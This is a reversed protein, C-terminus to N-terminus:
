PPNDSELALHMGSIWGPHSSPTFSNAHLGARWPYSLRERVNTNFRNWLLKGSLHQVQLIANQLVFMFPINRHFAFSPLENQLLLTRLSYLLHDNAHGGDAQTSHFNYLTAFYVGPTSIIRHCTCLTQLAISAKMVESLPLPKLLIM